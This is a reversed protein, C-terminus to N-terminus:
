WPVLPLSPFHPVAVTVRSLGQPGMGEAPSSPLCWLMQVERTLAPLSPPAESQVVAGARAGQQLPASEMRHSIVMLSGPDLHPRWVLPREWSCSHSDPPSSAGDRHCPVPQCLYSTLAATPRKKKLTCFFFLLLVPPPLSPFIFPSLFLFSLLSSDLNAPRSDSGALLLQLLLVPSQM